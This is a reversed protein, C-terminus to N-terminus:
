FDFLLGLVCCALSRGQWVRRAAFVFAASCFLSLEWCEGQRVRDTLKLLFARDRLELELQHRLVKIMEARGEATSKACYVLISHTPSSLTTKLVEHSSFSLIVLIFTDGTILTESFTKQEFQYIPFSALTIFPFFVALPAFLRLLYEPVHFHLLCQM